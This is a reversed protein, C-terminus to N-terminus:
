LLTLIDCIPAKKLLMKINNVKIECSNEEAGLICDFSMGSFFTEQRKAYNRTAQKIKEKVDSLTSQNEFYPFFEKYGIAQSASPTQKLGKLYLMRVEDELGQKFFIDVRRNIREYIWERSGKLLVCFAEFPSGELKSQRNWDGITTGTTHYLELARIVRKLNNPHIREASEKDVMHLISHVFDNGAANAINIYASRLSETSETEPLSTGELLMKIYLGTGGVLIPLKGRSSIDKAAQMALETFLKVSFPEYIDQVDVLHHKIAEREELSPKATGIDMGLYLQMSDGSIIEGNLQKALELAIESKGSATAGAIVIIPIKKQNHNM